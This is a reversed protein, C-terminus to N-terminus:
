AFQAEYEAVSSGRQKLTAFDAAKKEQVRDSFYKGNFYEEFEEWAVQHDGLTAKVSDWWTRADRELQFTSLLIREQNTCQMVEFIRKVEDLWHEAEDPNTSGAFRPPNMGRFNQYLDGTGRNAGAGAQALQQLAQTLDQVTRQLNRVEARDAAM